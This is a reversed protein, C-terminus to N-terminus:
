RGQQTKAYQKKAKYAFVSYAVIMVPIVLWSFGRFFAFPTEFLLARWFEGGSMDWLGPTYYLEKPNLFASLKIADTAILAAFLPVFCCALSFWMDSFRKYRAAKSDVDSFIDESGEARTQKFYQSGSSKTGAVHTWGSDEFLAKYDEFDQRSKFTRYDMRFNANEPPVQAFEYGFPKRRILVNGQRAMENLWQEERDFNTFFKMKKM